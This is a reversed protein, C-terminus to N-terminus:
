AIVACLQEAARCDRLCALQHGALFENFARCEHERVIWYEDLLIVTGSVIRPAMTELVVRTSSYLDCDIHLLAANGDHRALFPTITADFHGIILEVNGPVAPPDCAFHGAPYNAWPEPLGEFSDFGYIPREPMLEALVRISYGSAVGFECVLGKAPALQAARTLM